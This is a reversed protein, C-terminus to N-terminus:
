SGSSSSEAAILEKIFIVERELGEELSIRPQFGFDEVARSVDAGTNTVDGQQRGERLVNAKRGAIKEILAIVDNMSIRTGGGLNYIGGPKGSQAAQINAEVIDGVNVGPVDITATGASNTSGDGWDISWQWPGDAGARDARAHGVRAQDPAGRPRHREVVHVPRIRDLDLTPDAVHPHQEVPACELLRRLERSAQDLTEPHVREAAQRHMGLHYQHMPIAADGGACNQDIGDGPVDVAGPRIAPNADDCDGPVLSWSKDIPCGAMISLDDGYGDLDSDSDRDSSSVM